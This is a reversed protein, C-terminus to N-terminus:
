SMRGLSSQMGGKAMQGSYHLAEKLNARRLSIVRRLGGADVFAVVHVKQDILGLGYRTEGEPCSLALMTNWDLSAAEALFVKHRNKNAMDGTCDFVVDMCKSRKCFGRGGERKYACFFCPAKKKGAEPLMYDPRTSLCPTITISATSKYLNRALCGPGPTMREMYLRIESETLHHGLRRMGSLQEDTLPPVDPDSLAAATIARDEEGTPFIIQNRKVATM